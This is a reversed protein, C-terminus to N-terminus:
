PNGCHSFFMGNKGMGIMMKVYVCVSPANLWLPISFSAGAVACLEGEEIHMNYISMHAFVGPPMITTLLSDMSDMLLAYLLLISM